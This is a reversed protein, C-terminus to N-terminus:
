DGWETQELKDNANISQRPIPFVTKDETDSEKDWWKEDFREWRILDTRRRLESFFERGWEDIFEQETLDSNNQYSHEPWEDEPFNRERVADLLEEADEVEGDRFKCEAVIFYMEALRMEPFSNDWSKGSEKPLWPFKLVRVGSNEEGTRVTSGEALGEEGESFRGVQDRFELHQGSYEETGTVIKTSDYGYGESDNFEYQPGILFFGEYDGNKSTTVFPQKRYDDDSFKEYPKGLEFDTYINGELDRSPQLHVGNWGAYETDLIRHSQYHQTAEYMFGPNNVDKKNPIELLNEPSRYEGTGSRFPGRYDEDLSHHGGYEGDIIDQAIKESEDYMDQDIWVEANFYLRALLGAVAEKDFRGASKDEPLHELAEELDSEIFDFVEQPSSQEKLDDPTEVIPVERFWNLLDMYFWGRLAKLEAIHEDKKDSDLNIESYDIGELDALLTNIQGIGQFPGTWGSYIEPDDTAWTHDHLRVWQGDDYGHKGKQTWVMHDATLEELSFHHRGWSHWSGHEYVRLIARIISEEDQFYNDKTMVSFPEEELDTCAPTFIMALILLITFLKVKRM